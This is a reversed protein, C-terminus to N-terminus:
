TNNKNEKLIENMRDYLSKINNYREIMKTSVSDCYWSAGSAQIMRLNENMCMNNLAEVITTMEDITLTITVISM